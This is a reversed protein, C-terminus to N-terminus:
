KVVTFRRVHDFSAGTTRVTYVGPPLAATEISTLQEGTAVRDFVVAVERGLPDVVVARISQPVDVSLTLTSRHGAPTPSPLSLSGGSAAEGETAVTGLGAFVYGAGIQDDNASGVLARDSGLSVSFGLVDDESGNPNTLKASQTWAAGSRNFM